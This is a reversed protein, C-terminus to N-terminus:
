LRFRRFGDARQIAFQTALPQAHVVEAGDDLVNGLVVVGFDFQGSKDHGRMAVFQIAFLHIEQGLGHDIGPATQVPVLVEHHVFVADATDGAVPSGHQYQGDDRRVAGQKGFSRRTGDSRWSAGSVGHFHQSVHLQGNFLKVFDYAGM